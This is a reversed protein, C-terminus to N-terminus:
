GVAFTLMTPNLTEVALDPAYFGHQQLAAARKPTDKSIQTLRYIQKKQEDLLTSFRSNNTKIDQVAQSLQQGSEGLCKAFADFNTEQDNLFASLKTFFLERQQQNEITSTTLLNLAKNLTKTLSEAKHVESSLLEKVESLETVTAALQLQNKKYDVTTEELLVQSKQLLTTQEMVTSDITSITTQLKKQVKLLEKQNQDLHQNSSNLRRIEEELANCQQTLLQNAEHLLSVEEALQNSTAELNQIITGLLETLSLITTKIEETHSIHHKQHNEMVAITLTCFGLLCCGIASLLVIQTVLGILLIPLMVIVAAISKQWWNLKGWLLSLQTFWSPTQTIADICRLLQQKIQELKQQNFVLKKVPLSSLELSILEHLEPTISM